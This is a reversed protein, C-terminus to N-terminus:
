PRRTRLGQRLHLTARLEISLLCGSWPLALHPRITRSDGLTLSLYAGVLTYFHFCSAILLTSLRLRFRTRFAMTVLTSKDSLASPKLRRTISHFMTQQRRASYLHLSYVQRVASRTRTCAYLKTTLWLSFQYITSDTGFPHSAGPFSSASNTLNSVLRSQHELRIQRRVTDLM